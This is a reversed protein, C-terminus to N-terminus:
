PDIAGATRDNLDQAGCFSVRKIMPPPNARERKVAARRSGFSRAM